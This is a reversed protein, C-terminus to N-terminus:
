IDCTDGVSPTLVFDTSEPISLTGCPIADLGNYCNKMMQVFKHMQIETETKNILRYFKNARCFIYYPFSNILIIRRLNYVRGM